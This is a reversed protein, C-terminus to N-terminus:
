GDLIAGLREAAERHAAPHVHAYVDLTTRVSTHGLRAAVVDPREGAELALTAATHRSGHLVIRRVGAEAVLRDFREAFTRPHVVSGDQEAVLWGADAYAPGVLLRDRSQETRHRRLAAVSGADLAIRRARRGKTTDRVYPGGPGVLVQRRVVLSGDDLDVDSWRLGLLEGRRMGTALALRWAAALRDQDAVRLFARAEDATWARESGVRGKAPPDVAAAPNAGIIGSRHADGLARTLLTHVNRVTKAALPGGSRAGHDLLDAYLRVLAPPRLDALRVDEVDRLYARVITADLNRTGPALDAVQRSPLWVDRLYAGLTLDSPEVYTPSALEGIRTRAADRAERQTAFTGLYEVERGDRGTTAVSAAWRRGRRRVKARLTM